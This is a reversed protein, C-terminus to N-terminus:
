EGKWHKIRVQAPRIVKENLVYGKQMVDAVMDDENKDETEVLGVSTHFRPDFKEGVAGITTLGQREFAKGLQAYISEVGARWGKDVKEWSEKHGFAMEFSDAVLFFDKLMKEKAFKMFEERESAELKKANVFDAKARQWGTLYEQKETEAAKLRERLKKVVAASSEMEEEPVIDETDHDLTNDIDDM